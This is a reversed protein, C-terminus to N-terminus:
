VNPLVYILDNDSISIINKCNDNTCGGIRVNEIATMGGACRVAANQVM